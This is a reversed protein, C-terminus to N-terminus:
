RVKIVHYDGPQHGLVDVPPGPLFLAQLPSAFRYAKAAQTDFFYSPELLTFDFLGEDDFVVTRVVPEWQLLTTQEEGTDDRFAWVLASGSSAAILEQFGLPFQGVFSASSLAPDWFLLDGVSGNGILPDRIFRESRFM